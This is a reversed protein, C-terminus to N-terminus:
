WKVTAVPCAGRKREVTVLGADELRRLAWVIRIGQVMKHKIIETITSIHNDRM